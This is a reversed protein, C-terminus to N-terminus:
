KQCEGPSQAAAVPQRGIEEMGVHGKFGSVYDVYDCSWFCPPRTWRKLNKMGQSLPKDINCMSFATTRNRKLIRCREVADMVQADDHCYVYVSMDQKTNVGHAKLIDLGRIVQQESSRDDFAFHMPNWWKIKTLQEAIEDDLLRIDMGQTVDLAINNDIFWQSTEFFWSKDAYWNNDMLMVKKHQVWESPHKYRQYQGEKQPVVCFYCRRVCGRSTHGISYNIGPYISYDPNCNEIEEPLKATLDYGSGGVIVDADPYFCRPGDAMHKNEKFIISVYVRDPETVYFGVEDGLAKHYASVKMLALNPYISDSNVLLVRM